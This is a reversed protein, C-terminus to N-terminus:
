REEGAVARIAALIENPHFPKFLVKAIGAEEALRPIGSAISGTIMIIPMRPAIGLAKQALALGDLGPLNFDTIMLEFTKERLECLAEEGSEASQVAMGEQALLSKILRLLDQDDDVLLIDTMRVKSAVCNRQQNAKGPM